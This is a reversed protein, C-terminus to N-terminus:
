AAVAEAAAAKTLGYFKRWQAYGAAASSAKIGEAEIKPMVESLKTPRQFETSAADFISWLKDGITGPGPKSQGNQVVRAAKAAERAEAAALKAAARAEAKEAALRAKEAKEEARAQAKEAKEQAKAADEAAKMEAAKVAAEEPTMDM